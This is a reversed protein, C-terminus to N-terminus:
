NHIKLNYERHCAVRMLRSNIKFDLMQSTTVGEKILTAIRSINKPVDIDNSDSKM